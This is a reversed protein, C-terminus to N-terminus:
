ATEFFLVGVASVVLLALTMVLMTGYFNRELWPQYRGGGRWILWTIVGYRLTRVVLAIAIFALIHVQSLGSLVAVLGFPVSSFGGSILFIGSYTKFVGLVTSAVGVYWPQAILLQLLLFGLSYAVVAGLVSGMAAVLAYRLAKHPSLLAMPILLFDSPIPVLLAELFAVGFLRWEADPQCAYAAFKRRYDM